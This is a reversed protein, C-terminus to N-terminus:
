VSITNNIQFIFYCIKLVAFNSKSIIDFHLKNICTMNHIGLLGLNVQKVSIFVKFMVIFMGYTTSMKKHMHCIVYLIRQICLKKAFKCIRKNNNIQNTLVFVDISSYYYNFGYNFPLLTFYYHTYLVQSQQMLWNQQFKHIQKLLM